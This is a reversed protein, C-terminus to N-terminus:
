YTIGYRLLSYVCAVVVTMFMFPMGVKLFQNFTFPKGAQEVFVAVYSFVLPGIWPFLLCCVFFYESEERSCCFRTGAIGATVVNASAGILTGNGGLCAGLSLGWALPEVPLGTEKALAQIVSVMTVTYPINDIFASIIASVWVILALAAIMQYRPEVRVIVAAVTQGIFEVLGLESMGELMVFLCMFFLLTAWEIRHLVEEIAHPRAALALVSAGLLAVWAQELHLVPEMFFLTVVVLLVM